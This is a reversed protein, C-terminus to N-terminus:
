PEVQEPPPSSIRGDPLVEADPYFPRSFALAEAESIETLDYDDLGNLDASETLYGVRYGDADVYVGAEVLGGREAIAAEPGNGWKGNSLRWKLYTM